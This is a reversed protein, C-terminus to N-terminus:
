KINRLVSDLVKQMPLHEMCFYEPNKCKPSFYCTCEKDPEVIEGRGYLEFEFPNFINNILVLQKKLGIALHMSMTVGSVILDCKSCLAIFEKLPFFGTYEATSSKSINKNREDEQKGGLLIPHYGEAILAKALDSWNEESWLRSIWRDGCGTNLGIIKKGQNHIDFEITDDYELIYEEGDFRWDCIEFIEEVYSKKNAKNVDDFLGTDFKHQALENIPAPLGDELYFGYKERSKIRNMLACAEYDKDLNYVIDFKTEELILISAPEFPMIVDISNQPLISPFYSLWWIKSNPYEKNIKHILPTTRMVDGAAGLKIILIKKNVTQYYKCDSCKVGFEKHFKCPVTGKFYKCDSNYHM